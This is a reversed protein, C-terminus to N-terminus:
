AALSIIWSPSWGTIRLGSKGFNADTLGSLNQNQRIRYLLSPKDKLEEINRTRRQIGERDVLSFWPQEVEYPPHPLNLSVYLCFPEKLEKNRIMELTREIVLDDQTQAAAEQTMEGFYFSYYFFSNEQIEAEPVATGIRHIDNTTMERGIYELDCTAKMEAEDQRNFYHSKGMLYVHYGNKEAVEDSEPRRKRFLLPNDPSGKTHPYWGTNFSRRSPVCIPSQCFANAFLIGEEALADYNPTALETHGPAVLSDAGRSIRLLFLCNKRKEM